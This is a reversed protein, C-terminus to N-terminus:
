APGLEAILNRFTEFAPKPTYDDRMLGFHYFINSEVELNSSDADRLAFMTYRAINFRQRVHYLTRIITELVVSQRQESRRPGTPWGTEAIHIPVSAPIGASPLWTERMTEVIHIVSSKLDGEEGDPAVARFVDPFFDLGVYDLCDIFTSGGLAALSTWFEAAPGFTPTANFGVNVALGMRRAEDKAAMVGHVLAERVRPYPGDICKPGSVFNPEEAIQISYLEPGQERVMSRVFDSFGNVDGAASQFMVVLDLLRGDGLYQGFHRPTEGFRQYVRVVFPKSSGALEILAHNVRVPDDPPGIAIGQDSGAEGGPYIGFVLM